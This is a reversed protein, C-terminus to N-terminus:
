VIYIGGKGQIQRGQLRGESMMAKIRSIVHTKPLDINNSIRAYTAKAVQGVAISRLYNTIRSDKEENSVHAVEAKPEKVTGTEKTGPSGGFRTIIQERTLREDGVLYEVSRKKTVKDRHWFENCISLGGEAYKVILQPKVRRSAADAEVFGYENGNLNFAGERYNWKAQRIAQTAEQGM